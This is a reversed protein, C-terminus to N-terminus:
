KSGSRFGQFPNWNETGKETKLYNAYNASWMVVFCTWTGVWHYEKPVGLTIEASMYGIIGLLVVIGKKWMGRAFFYVPGFLFALWNANFFLRKLFPMARRAERYGPSLPGGHTEFFAFREQKRSLKESQAKPPLVPAVAEQTAM